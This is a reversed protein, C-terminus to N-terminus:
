ICYTNCTCCFLYEVTKNSSYKRKSDSKYRSYSITFEKLNGKKEFVGRIAQIPIIGENNYSMFIYKSNANEILNKFENYATNVLCYKSRKGNELRLGTKGYIVPNDYKAITELIHYNTYYQRRNYPPDLYLVDTSIRKILDNADQNYIEHEQHNIYLKSPSFYFELLATKKFKKLYAGYVSVSNSYKDISELLSSILFFYEDITIVKNKKFFEIKTRIADCKKANQETFYMRGDKGAPSYNEAIFGHIPQLTNFFRFVEKLINNKYRIKLFNVLEKFELKKHNGIFHRNLVYSYYQLDNAIIKFGLKKFNLGVVGTGSFIDCFVRCSDDINELIIKEIFPLLKNKAGIYNM